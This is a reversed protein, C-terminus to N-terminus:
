GSAPVCHDCHCQAREHGGARGGFDRRPLGRDVRGSQLGTGVAGEDLGPEALGLVLPIQARPHV